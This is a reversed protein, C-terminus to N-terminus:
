GFLEELEEEWEDDADEDYIEYFEDEIDDDEIEDQLNKIQEDDVQEKYAQENLLGLLVTAREEADMPDCVYDGYDDLLYEPTETSEGAVVAHQQSVTQQALTSLLNAIAAVPVQRGGIELNRRGSQGMTMALLAQLTEPRSLLAILQSSASGNQQTPAYAQATQSARPQLTTQQSQTIQPHSMSAPPSVTGAPQAQVQAGRTGTQTTPAAQSQTSGRPQSAQYSQVGGGVAGLVGGVLAGYPGLASGATAGQVAGPLAGSAARSLVNGASQGFRSLNNLFSEYEDLTMGNLMPELADELAEESLAAFNESVISRVNPYMDRYGHSQLRVINNM